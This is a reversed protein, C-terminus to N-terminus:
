PELKSASPGPERAKIAGTPLTATFTIEIDSRRPALTLQLEIVSTSTNSFAFGFHGRETSNSHISGRPVADTTSAIRLSHGTLGPCDLQLGNELELLDSRPHGIAMAVVPGGSTTFTATVDSGQPTTVFNITYLIGPEIRASYDRETGAELVSIAASDAWASFSVLVLWQILFCRGIVFSM